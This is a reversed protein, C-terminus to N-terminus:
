YARHGHRSGASEEGEAEGAGTEIGRDNWGLGESTGAPDAGSHAGVDPPLVGDDVV